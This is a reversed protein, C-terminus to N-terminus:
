ASSRRKIFNDLIAADDASLAPEDPGEEPLGLHQGILRVLTDAARADGKLAKATISKLLLRQKSLVVPKGNERVEITETLEEMLDTRFNKVGKPRGKPNGSQGKKFRTHRPPKGYGVEYDKDKSM